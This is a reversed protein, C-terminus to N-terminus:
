THSPYPPRARHRTPSPRTRPYGTDGRPMGPRRSLPSQSLPRWRRRRQEGPTLSEAFRPGPTRPAHLRAPPRKRRRRRRRRRWWGGDPLRPPRGEPTRMYHTTEPAASVIPGARAPDGEPPAPSPLTPRPAAHPGPTSPHARRRHPAPPVAEGGSLGPDLGPRLEGSSALGPLNPGAYTPRRLSLSVPRLHQADCAPGM